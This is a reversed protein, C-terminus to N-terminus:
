CYAYTSSHRSIRPTSVGGGISEDNINISEKDQLLIEVNATVGGIIAAIFAQQKQQYDALDYLAMLNEVSASVAAIELATNVNNNPRKWSVDNALLYKVTSSDLRGISRHLVTNGHKDLANISHGSQILLRILDINNNEVAYFITPLGQKIRAKRLEEINVLYRTLEVNNNEVAYVLTNKSHSGGALTQAQVNAGATILSKVTDSNNQKAALLLPTLDDNNRADLDAGALALPEVIQHHDHLAVALLPTWRGQGHINPNAGAAILLEVIDKYGKASAYFLGTYRGQQTDDVDQGSTLYQEVQVRDRMKIADIYTLPKDVAVADSAAILVAMLLVLYRNNKM